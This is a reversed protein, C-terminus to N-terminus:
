RSDPIQPGPCVVNHRMDVIQEPSAKTPHTVKHLLPILLNLFSTLPIVTKRIDRLINKTLLLNGEALFFYNFWNLLM